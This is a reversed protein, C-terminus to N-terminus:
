RFSRFSRSSAFARKESLSPFQPIPESPHAFPSTKSQRDSFGGKRGSSGVFRNFLLFSSSSSLHFRLSPPLFSFNSSPFSPLPPPFISVSPPFFSPFILLHSPLFSLDRFHSTRMVWWWGGLSSPTDECCSGFIRSALRSLHLPSESIRSFPFHNVVM